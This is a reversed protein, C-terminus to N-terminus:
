VRYPGTQWYNKQFFAFYIGFFIRRGQFPRLFRQYVAKTRLRTRNYDTRIQSLIIQPILSIGAL